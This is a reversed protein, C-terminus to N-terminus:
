FGILLITSLNAKVMMIATDAPVIAAAHERAKDASGVFYFFVRGDDLYTQVKFKEKKDM